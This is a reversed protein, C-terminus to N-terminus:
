DAIEFGSSCGTDPDDPGGAPLYIPDRDIAYIDQFWNNEAASLNRASSSFVITRGSHALGVGAATFNCVLDACIEFGGSNDDGQVSGPGQTALTM